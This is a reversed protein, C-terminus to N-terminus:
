FKCKMQYLTGKYKAWIFLAGLNLNIQPVGTKQRHKHVKQMNILLSTRRKPLPVDKVRELFLMGEASRRHNCFKRLLGRNRDSAEGSPLNALVGWFLLHFSSIL